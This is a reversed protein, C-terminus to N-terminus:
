LHEGIFESVARLMEVRTDARSMWHDEGKLQVFTVDKDAKSLAKQMVRSQEMPVVTDDRGHVLLVPARFSGANLAPSIERLEDKDSAEAGYLDEWYDIVWHRSGRESKRTRLMRRVDSVASIAVVCRYLESSFAGSALAVYGGYSAGVICVRDPDAIGQEVLHRVGDDVDTRMKGGYEGRGARIFASGFGTSGRFQPQLIVYGRAAFFQPLWDFEYRDHAEPGGHPMVIVPANGAELVDDKATLLAPITLGDGASYETVRTGAVHENTIAPRSLALVRPQLVGKDFLLYAGSSWGGSIEVVLRDFGESWSVLKASTDPLRRLITSIRKDLEEDFFAYSPKFGEYEVGHVVRNIDTIVREIGLGDRELIPGTISGDEISMLYYSVVGTKASGSLVVLASRDPTLGVTSFAPRETEDEYLLRLKKGKEDLAWISHINKDDDFDERVLPAGHQDLFWDNTHASGRVRRRERRKDLSVAYLSYFPKGSGGGGSFAPMYLTKKDPSRGVIRGLGSQYAYLERARNLLTRVDGTEIDLAHAASYEFRDGMFGARNSTSAVLVLHEDSVFSLWRPKVAEANVGTIFENASTQAVVVIDRGEKTIRSAVLAGSPSLEVMDVVPLEGWAELPPLDEANATVAVYATAFAAVVAPLRIM